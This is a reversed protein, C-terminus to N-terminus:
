EPTLCTEGELNQILNDILETPLSGGRDQLTNLLRQKPPQALEAMRTSVPRIKRTVARQLCPPPCRRSFFMIDDAIKIEGNM